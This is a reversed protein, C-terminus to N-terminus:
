NMFDLEERELGMRIRGVNKKVVMIRVDSIFFNKDM